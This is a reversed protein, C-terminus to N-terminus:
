GLADRQRWLDARREADVVLRERRGVGDARDEGRRAGPQPVAPLPPPRPPIPVTTFPGRSPSASALSRELSAIRTSAFSRRQRTTASPPLRPKVWRARISNAAAPPRTLASKM